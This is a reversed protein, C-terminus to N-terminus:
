GIPVIRAPRILAAALAVTAPVVDRAPLALVLEAHPDVADRADAAWPVLDLDVGHSTVVVIPRGDSDVGAAVAPWREKIGGRPVPPEVRALHAAGVLAPEAILDVLLGREAALLDLPHHVAGRHRHARVADAVGALAEPSPVAGHMLTFAERDHPGVGVELRDVGLDPDHVARCVELGRVEGTFAGHEVVPEVGVGELIARFALHATPVPGPTPRPTPEAPVLHRGVVTWVAIDGAFFRARRALQGTGSEALVHVQDAGQQRAWALAPGLGRQPNDEVLVWAQGDRRLGAGPGFRGPAVVGGDGLHDRVLASLKVALLAARREPDITV